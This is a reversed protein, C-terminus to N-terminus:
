LDKIMRLSRFTHDIYQALYNMICGELEILVDETVTFTYLKEIEKSIIYQMAYLASTSISIAESDLHRCDTCLLGGNKPSFRYFDTESGCKVCEFLQPALGNLAMLKLEFVARILRLEITKKAVAKLSQYLLKLVEKEDNNEKTIYETFECFYFSYYLSDIDGRLETFYNSIEASMINYSSRGAYLTFEGFSFPESCALFASNPKRAGKAFASIKGLERTLIVLRKNYEGVPMASLVMGMVTISAPM